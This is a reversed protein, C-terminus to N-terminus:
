AQDGGLFYVSKASERVVVGYRMHIDTSVVFHTEKTTERVCVGTYLSMEGTLTILIADLWASKRKVVDLIQFFQKIHENTLSPNESIIKYHYPDGGYEFWERVLGSGFYTKIIQEVAWKTGLRSYVLDSDKILQVKKDRDATDNYWAINLEWALEDLENEPLEDLKDWTRLRSAGYFLTGALLNVVSALAAVTEDDRMMLPLLRLIDANNLKMGEM